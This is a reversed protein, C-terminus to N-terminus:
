KIVIQATAKCVMIYVSAIPAPSIEATPAMRAQVDAMIMLVGPKCWGCTVPCSQLKEYWDYGNQCAGPINAIFECSVGRGRGRGM